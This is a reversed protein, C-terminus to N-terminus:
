LRSRHLADQLLSKGHVLRRAYHQVGSPVKLSQTPQESTKVHGKLQKAKNCREAIKPNPIMHGPVLGLTM